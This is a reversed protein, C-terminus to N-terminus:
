GYIQKLQELGRKIWVSVTNERAGLIDAIERVPLDDVYRLVLASRYPEDLSRVREVAERQAALAEADLADYRFEIGSELAEDLSTIRKKTRIENIFANTASRYLFTRTHEVVGGRSLYEFFRTFVDQTMELARERNQLRYFLFRFIADAYEDYAHEFQERPDTTM